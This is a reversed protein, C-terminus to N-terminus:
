FLFENTPTRGFKNKSKSSKLVLLSMASNESDTKFISIGLNSFLDLNSIMPKITHSTGRSSSLSNVIRTLAISSNVPSV